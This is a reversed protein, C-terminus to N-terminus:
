DLMLSMPTELKMYSHLGTLLLFLLHLPWRGLIRFWPEVASAGNSDIVTIILHEM